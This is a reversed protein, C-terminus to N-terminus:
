AVWAPGALVYSGHWGSAAVIMASLKLARQTLWSKRTRRAFDGIMSRGEQRSQALVAPGAASPPAHSALWADLRALGKELLLFRAYSYGTPGPLSTLPPASTANTM